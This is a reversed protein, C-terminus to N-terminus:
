CRSLHFETGLTWSTENAASRRVLRLDEVARAQFEIDLEGGNCPGPAGKDDTEPAIHTAYQGTLPGRIDLM